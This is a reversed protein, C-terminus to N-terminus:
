RGKGRGVALSGVGVSGRVMGEEWGVVRRVRMGEEDREVVVREGEGGRRVDEEVEAWLLPLAENRWGDVGRRKTVLLTLGLLGGALGLVVAPFILWWWRVRFRVEERRAWGAYFDGYDGAKGEQRIVNTLRMAMGEVWADPDKLAYMRSAEANTFNLTWSLFPPATATSYALLSLPDFPDSLSTISWNRMDVGKDIPVRFSTLPFTNPLTYSENWLPLFADDPLSAPTPLYSWSSWPKPTDLSHPIPHVM